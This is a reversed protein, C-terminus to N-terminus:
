FECLIRSAGTGTGQGFGIDGDGAGCDLHNIEALGGGELVDDGALGSLTDDGTGGVLENANANGTITDDFDTGIVNEMDTALLDAEALVAPTATADAPEGSPSTPALTVVVATTRASYDITDVGTGGSITDAGDAVTGTLFVDDGAGGNLIDNGTDGTITNNLANGTINDVLTTGLINEVDAKCNDGESVASVVAGDNAATGDMTVTVGALRASYDLTDTGNGGNFIDGGNSATEEDFTDNGDGGNLVDAGGAGRLIDDGADGNLTDAGSDGILTDNGTGGNFTVAVGAAATMTDAVTGGTVVEVDSKIDDNETASVMGDNAGAGVTVTVAAVRLAYSVTDTDAGGYITETVTALAGQNFLDAGAGGYVTIPTAFAAGIATGGSSTFTDAGDGLYVVHTDVNTMTIDKFADNNLNVGSAGYAINDAAATGRIGLTDGTAVGLDVVIGTTTTSSTGVGFLGNTFDLIVTKAAGTGNVVLKKLTSSTALNDCSAGNQLIASDAARRSIIATEGAAVNVTMLGSAVVFTCTGALPTLHEEAQQFPDDSAVPSTTSASCGALSFVMLCSLPLFSLRNRM